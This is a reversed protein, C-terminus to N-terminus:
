FVLIIVAKKGSNQGNKLHLLTGVTEITEGTLDCFGSTVFFLVVQLMKKM